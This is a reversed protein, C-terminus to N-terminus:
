TVAPLMAKNEPATVANTRLPARRCRANPVTNKTEISTIAAHDAQRASLVGPPPHIIREYSAAVDASTLRSGDHFRIDPRLRFTYTMRDPSVTWSEALDGEIKPYDASSFKLVRCNETVTRM